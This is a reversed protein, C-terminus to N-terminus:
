AHLCDKINKYVQEKIAIAPTIDFVHHLYSKIPVIGMVSNCIFAADAQIFDDLVGKVIQTQPFLNLVQARMLGSVGSLCLDPTYLQKEKMWFINACTTEIIHKEMNLVLLDDYSTQELEHRLMVQELRNLHKLGSLQPSLGLTLHSHGISIGTDPWQLYHTPYEHITIVINPFSAGKRSYGRGGSGASILVKIVALDYGQALKLLKDKLLYLDPCQIYLRECSEKLREIHQDILDIKGNFIKATTFVGDGYNLGRDLISLSTSSNGNVESYLM